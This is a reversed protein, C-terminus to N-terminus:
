MFFYDKCLIATGINNGEKVELFLRFSMRKLYVSDYHKM